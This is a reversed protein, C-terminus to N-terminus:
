MNPECKVEAVDSEVDKQGIYVRLCYAGRGRM